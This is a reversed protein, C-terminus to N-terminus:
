SAAMPRVAERESVIRGTVDKDSDSYEEGKFYISPRVAHLLAEAGTADNIGVFDVFELAALMEARVIGPFVPRGPGKNVHQDATLTVILVNSTARAEQLHYIHGIHLLDFVGHALVVSRGSARAERAIQGLEEISCIKHRLDGNNRPAQPLAKDM